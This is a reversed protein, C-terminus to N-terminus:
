SETKSMLIKKIPNLTVTIISYLFQYNKDNILLLTQTICTTYISTGSYKNFMFLIIVNTSICKYM